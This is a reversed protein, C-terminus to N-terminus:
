AFRKGHRLRDLRHTALPVLGSSEEPLWIPSSIAHTGVQLYWGNSTAMIATFIRANTMDTSWTESGMKSSRERWHHSIPRLAAKFGRM